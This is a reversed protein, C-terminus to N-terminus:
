DRIYKGYAEYELHRICLRDKRVIAKTAGRKENTRGSKKGSRLKGGREKNREKRRVGVGKGREEMKYKRGYKM